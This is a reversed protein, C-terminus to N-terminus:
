VESVNENSNKFEFFKLVVNKFLNTSVSYLVVKKRKNKKQERKSKM